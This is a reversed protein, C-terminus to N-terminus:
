MPLRFARAVFVAIQDRTCPTGPGYKGDGYGQVVGAAAAYEVYKHAWAWENGSTVDPFTPSTPPTYASMGAEGMPEVIARSIFVAMQGRDVSDTPGYLGTPYGIVIGHAYAYEIYDYAWHKIPTLPVDPFTAKAPGPPVKADGGAIARSIFVAMQDRSVTGTPGYTGDGFGLVIGAERTLEIPLLAWYDAAVDPFSGKIVNVVVNTPVQQGASPYYITAVGVVPRARLADASVDAAFVITKTEGPGLEGIEWDLSHATADYATAKPDSLILTSDDLKRDLRVIAYAGYVTESLDSKCTLTYTLTDGRDVPGEPLVSIRPGDYSSDVATEWEARNNATNTESSEAPVYAQSTVLTGEAATAPLVISTVGTWEQAVDLGALNAVILERGGLIEPLVHRLTVDSSAETGANGVSILYNIAEGPKAAPPGLVSVWLDVRPTGGFQQPLLDRPAGWIPDSPSTWDPISPPETDAGSPDDTAWVWIRDLTPTPATQPTTLLLQITGAQGLPPMALDWTVVGDAAQIPALDASEFAYGPPMTVGLYLRDSRPSTISSTGLLPYGNGYRLTYTQTQGLGLREPGDILGFIRDRSPLGAYRLWWVRSDDFYATHRANPADGWAGLVAYRPFKWKAAPAKITSVQEGDLSLTLSGDGCVYNVEVQHWSGATLGIGTPQASDLLQFRSSSDSLAEWGVYGSWSAGSVPYEEDFKFGFFTSSNPETRDAVYAWTRVSIEAQGTPETPLAMLMGTIAQDEIESSMVYEGTHAWPQSSLMERWTGATGPGSAFTGWPYRTTEFGTLSVTGKEARAGIAGIADIDAGAWPYQSQVQTPDDTIRVYYFVDGPSSFPKIDIGTPQGKLTGLDIWNEGDKSIEVSFWEVQGGVEFIFLDLGGEVADQDVLGNDVFRTTLSGGEGLSVANDHTEEIFDPLGLAWEPVAHDSAVGSGQNFAVVEDAFSIEGLPFEVGGFQTAGASAAALLLAAATLLALYLFSAGNGAGVRFGAKVRGDAM